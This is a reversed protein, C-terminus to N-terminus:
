KLVMFLRYFDKVENLKGLGGYFEFVKDYWTGSARSPIVKTKIDTTNPSKIAEAKSHASIPIM